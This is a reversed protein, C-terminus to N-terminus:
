FTSPQYHYLLLHLFRYHSYESLQRLDLQTQYHYRFGVPDLQDLQYSLLSDHLLTYKLAPTHLQYAM